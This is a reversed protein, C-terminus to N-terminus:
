GFADTEIAVAIASALGLIRTAAQEEGVVAIGLVSNGVTAREFELPHEVDVGVGFRLPVGCM